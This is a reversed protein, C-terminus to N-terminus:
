LSMLFTQKYNTIYTVLFKLIQSLNGNQYIENIDYLVALGKVDQTWVEGFYLEFTLNSGPFRYTRPLFTGGSVIIVM